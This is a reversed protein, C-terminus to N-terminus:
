VKNHTQKQQGPKSACVDSIARGYKIKDVSARARVRVSHLVVIICMVGLCAPPFFPVRGPNGEYRKRAAEAAEGAIWEHGSRM